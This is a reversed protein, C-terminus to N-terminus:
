GRRRLIHSLKAPAAAALLSDEWDSDRGESTAAALADWHFDKGTVALAAPPCCSLATLPGPPELAAVEVVALDRLHGGGLGVLTCRSLTPRTGEAGLSRGYRSLVPRRAGRLVTQTCLTRSSGPASSGSCRAGSARARRTAGGPLAREAGRSVRPERARGCTGWRGARERVRVGRGAARPATMAALLLKLLCLPLGASHGLSRHCYCADEAGRLLM